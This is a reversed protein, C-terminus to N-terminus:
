NTLPLGQVCLLCCCRSSPALAFASTPTLSPVFTRLSITTTPLPSRFFAAALLFFLSLFFLLSRLFAAEKADIHSSFFFFFLGLQFFLESVSVSQCRRRRFLETKRSVRYILLYSIRRRSVSSARLSSSATPARNVTGDVM